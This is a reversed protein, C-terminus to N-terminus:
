ESIEILYKITSKNQNYIVFENNRLDIGGKAFLSDYDGKTKLKKDDMKYCEDSHKELRYEMGTNVEYIALFAQKSKGSTWYSGNLSTYGLSKQSKDAFYIGAGWMAGTLVANSPRILLGTKIISLWNENRSGHFLLKTWPKVSKTKQSEFAKQTNINEIKYAQKFLKVNDGMMKKIVDIENNDPKSVKIGLADELTQGSTKPQVNMGVQQSMVDLLDQENAILKKAQKKDDTSSLLHNKVNGMKRPIITYLEMLKENLESTTLKYLSTAMQNIIDQAADIQSQTVNESSITYNTQITQKAYKQLSNLLNQIDKEAINSYSFSTTTESRLGTIDKYGKKLKEQYKKDWVNSQYTQTQPHDCGVRGWKAEWTGNENDTQQYFKNNNVDTVCVLYRQMNLGGIIIM